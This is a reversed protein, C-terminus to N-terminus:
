FQKLYTLKMIAGSEHQMFDESDLFERSNYVLYVSSLPNYEWTFRINFADADNQTNRQYLGSLHVAPNLAFRSQLTYLNINKSIKQPGVERFKNQNLQMQLNVQPVPATKLTLEASALRGDFYDGIEYQLMYVLARSADSGAFFTHRTYTYVGPDISIGLPRFSNMLVQHNWSVSYRVIGGRQLDLWFPYFRVEREALDGTSAQHYFATEIGPRFSRIISKLPMWEGRLNTFLGPTTAIINERSVFGLEPKFNKTIVSQTWWGTLINTTYNYQAYGGFGTPRHDSYGTQIFMSQLSHAEGFRFFGDVAGLWNTYSNEGTATRITTLAGVRNQKGINQSYRGVAVHMDPLFDSDQQHMYLVGANTKGSRHVARVGGDMSIPEGASDLGIRRSFFPLIQMNGGTGDGTQTLGTGFLSANELFFPRKEPFLVNFRNVNAEQIDAEAQAFDTNVTFDLITNTTLAWKVDGGAKFATKHRPGAATNENNMLAYPTVQINSSPKPVEMTKLIGAYEMRNFGFSRPYPSWASIENSMRRLRLFNIGWEQNEAIQDPYRLTKFPIEFEAFWGKNTRRTRVKWLGNWASDFLINDISLYDKQAGFPNTAFSMGNRKDNFGDITIAFTDHDLWNFDRDLNPARIAEMGLPDVCFVGIYLKEDTYLIRVQTDFESREGQDPEIQIFNNLLPAQVWVTDKLNGDVVPPHQTFRAQVTLPNEDPSFIKQAFLLDTFLLLLCFIFFVFGTKKFHCNM